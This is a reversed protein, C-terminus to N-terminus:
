YKCRWKEHSSLHFKYSFGMGCNKCRYPQLRNHVNMHGEFHIKSHFKKGCKGCHYRQLTAHITLRHNNLGSESRYQKGCDECKVAFGQCHPTHRGLLFKNPFTKRCQGCRVVGTLHSSDELSPIIRGDGPIIGERVAHLHSTSPYTQLCFWVTAMPSPQPIYKVSVNLYFSISM